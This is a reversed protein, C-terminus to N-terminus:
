NSRRITSLSSSPVTVASRVIVRDERDTTFRPRGSGDQRQVTGNEIWGQWCRRITADSRSFYCATRRNIWGAEKLGIIRGGDFESLQWYHARIRCRPM